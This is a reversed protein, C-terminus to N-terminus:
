CFPIILKDGGVIQLLARRGTAHFVNCADKYGEVFITPETGEIVFYYNKSQAGSLPRKTGDATIFQLNILEHTRVDFLPIILPNIFTQGDSTKVISLTRANIPKIGALAMYPHASCPKAKNWIQQAESAKIQFQIIKKQKEAKRQKELEIHLKELEAPDQKSKDSTREANFVYSAGCSHDYILYTGNAKLVISAARNKASKGMSPFRYQKEPVFQFPLNNTTYGLNLLFDHINTKFM